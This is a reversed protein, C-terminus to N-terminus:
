IYKIPGLFYVTFCLFFTKTNTIKVQNSCNDITSGIFFEKPAPDLADNKKSKGKNSSNHISMFFERTVDTSNKLPVEKPGKPALDPVGNMEEIYEKPAPDLADNIEEFDENQYYYEDISIWSSFIIFNHWINFVAGFTLRHYM